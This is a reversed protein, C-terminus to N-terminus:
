FSKCFIEDTMSATHFPLWITITIGICSSPPSSSFWTPSQLTRPLLFLAQRCSPCTSRWTKIINEVTLWRLLSIYFLLTIHPHRCQHCHCSCHCSCHCHCHSSSSLLSLSWVPLTQLRDARKQSWKSDVKIDRSKIPADLVPSAELCIRGLQGSKPGVIYFVFNFSYIQRYLIFHRACFGNFKGGGGSCWLCHHHYHEINEIQLFWLLLM